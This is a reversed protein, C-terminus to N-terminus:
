IAQFVKRTAGTLALKRARTPDLWRWGRRPGPASDAPRAPLVRLRIRYRTIVHRVEVVPEGLDTLAFGVTRALRDRMPAWPRLPAADTEIWPLEWLGENHKGRPARRLLWRGRCDEVLVAVHFSDVMARRPPLPPFAEPTGRDHGACGSALPCAGCRPRRPRCLTAGVEMLAQNSDGPRAPDLLERALAEIHRRGRGRRPNEELALCRGLVRIVNGDIVPEPIGFCISAIAAATYPGIGPLARLDALTCPFRGAHAEVIQRAARHLARARRYYGLGAWLALVRDESAAALARLDPLAEIFRQWYPKATEVTTQQLMVESIWVPYPARQRRWPLDRGHRGYWALLTPTLRALSTSPSDAM